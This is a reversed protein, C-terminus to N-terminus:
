LHDVKQILRRILQTKGCGGVGTVVVVKSGAKVRGDAELLVAEIFEMPTRREVYNPSLPPFSPRLVDGGFSATLENTLVQYLIMLSESLQELTRFGDGHKITDVCRDVLRVIELDHLYATTHGTIANIDKRGRSQQTELGKNVSLRHYLTLQTMYGAISHATKESDSALRELFGTWGTSGSDSPLDNVGPHGCGLSLVCAVTRENGFTRHAEAIIERTPNSLGLDAGVYEFSAFDKWVTTSTFIPPTACTALMAEAVTIDIPPEHNAVYNRLMCPVGVNNKYM